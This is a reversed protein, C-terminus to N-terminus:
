SGSGALEVVEVGHRGCIDVMQRTASGFIDTFMLHIRPVGGRDSCFKRFGTVAGRCTVPNMGKIAACIEQGALIVCAPPERPGFIMDGRGYALQGIRPFWGRSGSEPHYQAALGIRSKAERFSLDDFAVYDPRVMREHAYVYRAVDEWPDASM